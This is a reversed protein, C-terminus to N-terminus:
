EKVERPEYDKQYYHWVLICFTVTGVTSIWFVVMWIWPKNEALRSRGGEGPTYRVNVTPTSQWKVSVVDFGKRQTLDPELFEYTVALKTDDGWISRRQFPPIFQRVSKVEAVADRGFLAYILEPYCNFGSIVFTIVFLFFWKGHSFRGFREM